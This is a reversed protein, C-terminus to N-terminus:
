LLGPGWIVGAMLALTITLAVVFRLRAIPEAAEADPGHKRGHVMPTVLNQGRLLLYGLVALVHVAILVLLVDLAQHHIQGALRQVDAGVLDHWPGFWEIDDGNALGSLAQILVALLLAVSAWGGLPSHGLWLRGGAFGGRLYAWVAKPGTLFSRFRAHRTGLFGWLLRFIVLGLALYGFRFHWEMDLWGLEATGYAGLVALLLGWHVLRLPWDWVIISRDTM